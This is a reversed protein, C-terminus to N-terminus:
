AVALHESPVALRPALSRVAASSRIDLWHEVCGGLVCIAARSLDPCLNLAILVSRRDNVSM